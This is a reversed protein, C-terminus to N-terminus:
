NNNISQLYKFHEEELEKRKNIAENINSHLGGYIRQGNISIYAMWKNSEKNWSVGTIGSTNTKYLSHNQNNEKKTVLSLNSKLNYNRLRNKHDIIVEDNANMILRHMLIKKKNKQSLVYGQKNIHWTYEKILDYDEKDFYFEDGKNTYGIVFEDEFVYTNHNQPNGNLRKGNNRCHGCAGVKGHKLSLEMMEIVDGTKLCEVLFYRRRKNDKGIEKYYVDSIVKHNNIVDGKSIVIDKIRGYSDM